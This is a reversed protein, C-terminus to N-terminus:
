DSGGWALELWFSRGATNYGRLESYDRDFLNDARLRLTTRADFHWAVRGNVIAYGPLDGGLEPRRGAAVWELGADFREGFSRQAALSAKRPPRRLLRTGADLDRADQWTANAQLSWGRARWDLVAESGDIRARAINEAQFMDGGTFSILDVIDTRYHSLRLHLSDAPDLELAIEGTHSREPRLDPNGAYYGGYGPSFQENLDPGRFGQGFSGILRAWPALRVGLAASGTHAHGFESNDDYRGSVEWDVRRRQGYWGAYLARNDRSGSYATTGSSTDISAGNEHLLAIGAALQQGSGLDFANRWDLDERRSHFRSFYAPTTLEEHSGGLSLRHSWGTTVEGALEAGLAQEIAHSEGQDFQVHEDNFYGHASLRQTGVPLAGHAVLSRNRMGDDDPDYSYGEPNQASFGRVHRAGVEVSYGAGADNWHGIGASGAADAYSGYRLALAPAALRRTFIQIVGGIADSGWV